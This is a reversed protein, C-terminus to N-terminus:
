AVELKGYKGSVWADEGDFLVRLWGDDSQEGQYTLKSGETAVGVIEGTEKSPGSRAYCNGGVIAVFKPNRVVTELNNLAKEMAALSKPGFEGDVELKKDRQFEKVAMETADGFDGDAGWKGCSYGLRILNTQMEQVDNGEDGNRLIRDGLHLDVKAITAQGSYDFYKTMLGWFNPKRSLLKTKVVGYMVGRAEIIYWDGSPDSAKVPKYLYAVHHIDSASDGWFVAAGPVRYQAPITGKGKPDCWQQYNYRARTNIDVGSYDKYIGESMGNCDWVRKANERWYLAKAKQSANTYQTFWWSTTKWNKPNQGTAGMIYGDKRKLAAELESVFAAIPMKKISM